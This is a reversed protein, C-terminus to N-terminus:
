PGSSAELFGPKWPGLSPLWRNLRAAPAAAGPSDLADVAALIAQTVEPLEEHEPAPAAVLNPNSNIEWVQLRGGAVAYDIRGYEIRAAAFAAAVAEDHPRTAVFQRYEALHRGEPVCGSWGKVVWDKAFDLHGPVLHEGIRYYAYKRFTGEEDSSDLWEVVLADPFRRCADALERRSHLLRTLSGSHKVEERLFVPFRLDSLDEDQRFVRFDNHLVKLLEYRGLSRVPDNLVRCGADVLREHARRAVETYRPDLRDVDCFVYTARPLDGRLREYPLIRVQTSLARGRFGLWRSLTYHHRRTTLFVVVM